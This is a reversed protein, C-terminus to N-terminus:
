QSSYMGNAHAAAMRVLRTASSWTNPYQKPPTSDSSKAAPWGSIGSRESESMAVGISKAAIPPIVVISRSRRTSRDSRTSSVPLTGASATSRPSVDALTVPSAVIYALRRSFSSFLSYMAACWAM